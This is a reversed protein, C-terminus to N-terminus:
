QAEAEILIEILEAKTADDPFPVGRTDLEAKIDDKNKKDWFKARDSTPADDTGTSGPADDSSPMEDKTRTDFCESLADYLEAPCDFTDGPNYVVGDHEIPYRVKVKVSKAM